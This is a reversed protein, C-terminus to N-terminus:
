VSASLTDRVRRKIRISFDEWYQAVHLVDGLIIPIRNFRPM